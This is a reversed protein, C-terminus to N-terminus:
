LLGGPVGGLPCETCTRADIRPKCFEKGVRVILAHYENFMEMDRILNEMFISQIEDYSESGTIIGHASLLRTTYVDVVFVPRRAAYLLISDATEPGIGNVALLERRLADTPLKFFKDISGGYNNNIHELFSKLRRAKVNFYGSPRILEALSDVKLSRMAGITLARAKRLNRIAQEVNTWNTNQTLIAGVIVEFRTRAPWWGQPGYARFLKNYLTTLRAKIVKRSLPKGAGSLSLGPAAAEKVVAKTAAAKGIATKEPM